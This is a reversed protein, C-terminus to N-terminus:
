RQRLSITEEEGTCGPATKLAWNDAESGARRLIFKRRNQGIVDAAQRRAHEVAEKSIKGLDYLTSANGYKGFLFPQMAETSGSRDAHYGCPGSIDNGANSERWNQRVNQEKEKKRWM